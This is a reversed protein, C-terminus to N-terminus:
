GLLVADARDAAVVAAVTVKVSAINLMGTRTLRLRDNYQLVIVPMAFTPTFDADTSNYM